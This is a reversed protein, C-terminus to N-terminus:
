GDAMTERVAAAIAEPSIMWQQELPEAYPVPLDAGTVRRLGRLEPGVPSESIRAALEAGVGATGPAEHVIVCRRTRAVSELVGPLDMPALTRLDVVECEIGDAALRDAAALAMPVGRLYTVITVDSGQRRVRCAGFPVPKGDGAEGKSGYLMRHEIFLVPDDSRVATLLLGHADDPTAPAVVAFGPIQLFMAELSQTHQAGGGPGVGQQTRVTLPVSLRGGSLYRLKAVQNFLQDAAVLLFDAFMVEVVPRKGAIAAGLALGIFGAESIPTDRVREPGFEDFLGRTVGFVGGFRGIDEGMLFVDPDRRLEARLAEGVAQRYTVTM